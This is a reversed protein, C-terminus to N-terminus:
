IITKDVKMSNKLKTSENIGIQFKEAANQVKKLKPFKPSM